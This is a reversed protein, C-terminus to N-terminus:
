ELGLELKISEVHRSRKAEVKEVTIAASLDHCAISILRDVSFLRSTMSHVHGYFAAPSNTALLADENMTLIAIAIRFLVISGEAFFVDWVHFLTEVPLCDTYLSLFWAFTVAPLDVGLEDLHDALNPLLENVLEILVRQDAQSTLLHSTFYEAPLIKEIICVLVWFAEEETSHTLLLTAALNNMGQCYGIQPSYWSYAALVRRLKPVGPGDGGFYINTPMTRHIDLDIQSLAQNTEGSHEDLLDQYRGPEAVENAGSCEAWVKPRHALPIGEQCLKLFHKYDDRSAKDEGMQQLGILGYHYEDEGGNLGSDVAMVPQSGSGASRKGDAGLGHPPHLRYEALVRRRHQIFADWKEMQDAQHRSHMVKLQDLLSRVTESTTKGQRAGVSKEATTADLNMASASGSGLKFDMEQTPSTPGESQLGLVCSASLQSAETSPRAKDLGLLGMPHPQNGASPGSKSDQSKADMATSEDNANSQITSSVGAEDSLGAEDDSATESEDGREDDSTESHGGRAAIGVRIGTLCAPAPTSALRAQRLLRVDAPTADYVFGFVDVARDDYGAATENTDNSAGTTSTTFTSASHVPTPLVINGKGGYVEFEDGSTETDRSDDEYTDGEPDQKDIVSRMRRPGRRKARVSPSRTSAYTSRFMPRSFIALSPPKGDLPVIPELEVPPAAAAPGSQAAGNRATITETSGSEQRPPHHGPSLSVSTSRYGQSLGLYLPLRTVNPEPGSKKHANPTATTPTRSKTASRRGVTAASSATAAAQVVASAAQVAMSQPRDRANARRTRLTSSSADLDLLRSGSRQQDAFTSRRSKEAATGTKFSENVTLGESRATAILDYALRSVLDSAEKGSHVLVSSADAGLIRTALFIAKLHAPKPLLKYDLANGPTESPSLPASGIAEHLASVVDRGSVTRDTQNIIPRGSENSNLHIPTDASDDPGRSGGDRLSKVSVADRSHGDSPHRSTHASSITSPTPSPMGKITRQHDSPEKQKAASALRAATAAASPPPANATSKKRRWALSSFFGFASSTNSSSSSPPAKLTSANYNSASSQRRTLEPRIQTPSEIEEDQGVLSIRRRGPSDASISRSDSLYGDAEVAASSTAQTTASAKRDSDTVSWPMLGEAAKSSPRRPTQPPLSLTNSAISARSNARRSRSRSSSRISTKPTRHANGASDLNDRPSAQGSLNRTIGSAGGYGGDLDELMAEQLSFGLSHESEPFAQIFKSHRDSAAADGVSAGASRRALAELGPSFARRAEGQQKVDIQVQPLDALARAVARDVTGAAIGHHACVAKIAAERAEYKRTQTDIRRQFDLEQEEMQTQLHSLAEMKKALARSLKRFVDMSADEAYSVESNNFRAESPLEPSSLAHATVGSVRDGSQTQRLSALSPRPAAQSSSFPSMPRSSKRAKITAGMFAQLEDDSMLHLKALYKAEQAEEDDHTYLDEGETQKAEQDQSQLWLSALSNNRHAQGPSPSRASRGVTNRRATMRSSPRSTPSLVPSGINVADPRVPRPAAIQQPVSKHPHSKRVSKPTFAESADPTRSDDRPLDDDSDLAEEDGGAAISGAASRSARRSRSSRRGSQSPTLSHSYRSQADEEEEEHDRNAYVDALQQGLRSQARAQLKQTPSSSRRAGSAARFTGFNDRSFRSSSPSNTDDALQAQLAKLDFYHQGAKSEIASVKRGSITGATPGNSRTGRSITARTNIPSSTSSTSPLSPTSDETALASLPDNFPVAM